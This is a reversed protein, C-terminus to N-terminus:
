KVIGGVQPTFLSVTVSWPECPSNSFVVMRQRRPRLRSIWSYSDNPSFHEQRTSGSTLVGSNFQANAPACLKRWPARAFSHEPRQQREGDQCRALCVFDEGNPVDDVSHNLATEDVVDLREHLLAAPNTGVPFVASPPVQPCRRPLLTQRRRSSLSPRRAAPLEM